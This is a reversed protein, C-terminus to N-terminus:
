NSPMFFYFFCDWSKQRVLFNPFILVVAAQKYERCIM